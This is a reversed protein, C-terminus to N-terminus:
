ADRSWIARYAAQAIAVAGVVVIGWLMIGMPVLFMWFLVLQAAETNM